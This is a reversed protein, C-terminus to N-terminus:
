VQGHYKVLELLEGAHLSKNLYYGKGLSQYKTWEHTGHAKYILILNEVLEM